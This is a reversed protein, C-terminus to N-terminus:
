YGLLFITPIKHLDLKQKRWQLVTRTRIFETPATLNSAICLLTDPQCAELITALMHNNRFPTEMFIQTKRSERSDRELQLVVKRRDAQDIPLYGNFTFSQGNLGSAMLALLISSPGVLPVVRFGLQHAIRVAVAGPDAVGPCGAESLIGIDKGAPLRRLRAATDAEATKKTLEFFTLDQIVRGLRLGSIFRRATRLEEAFFYDLQGIVEAVQPSLVQQATGEALVTPILFLTSPGKTTSESM